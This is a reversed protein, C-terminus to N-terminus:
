TGSSDPSFFINEKQFSPSQPTGCGSSITQDVSVSRRVVPSIRKKDVLVSEHSQALINLAVDYNPPPTMPPEESSSIRTQRLMQPTPPYLNTTVVEEYTPPPQYLSANDGEGEVELQDQTVTPRNTERQRQQFCYLIILFIIVAMGVVIMILITNQNMIQEDSCLDVKAICSGDSCQRETYFDCDSHEPSTTTTTFWADREPDTEMKVQFLQPDFLKTWNVQVRQHLM